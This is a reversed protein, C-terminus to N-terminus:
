QRFRWRSRPRYDAKRIRNQRSRPPVRAPWRSAHDAISDPENGSTFLWNGDPSPICHFIGHDGGLLMLHQGFEQQAVHAEHEDLGDPMSRSRSIDGTGRESIQVQQFQRLKRFDWRRITRDFSASLVYDDNSTIAVDCVVDQHGILEWSKLRQLDWLRVVYEPEIAQLLEDYAPPGTATALWLSDSSFAHRWICGGYATIVALPAFPVNGGVHVLFSPDGSCMLLKGNPSLDVHFTRTDLTELGVTQRTPNDVDLKWIQPREKLLAVLLKEAASFALDRVEGVEDVVITPEARDSDQLNWVRIAGDAYAAALHMGEVALSACQIPIGAPGPARRFVFGARVDWVLITMGHRQKEDPSVSQTVLWLGDRTFDIRVIHGDEVLSIPEADFGPKQLDYIRARGDRGITALWRGTPDFAVPSVIGECVIQDLPRGGCSGLASRLVSEAAPLRAEGRDETLRLAEGSLLLGREAYGDRLALEAQAALRAAKAAIRSSVQIGFLVDKSTAQLTAAITAVRDCFIPHGLDYHQPAIGRFDVYLPEVSFTKALSRPLATSRSFDFDCGQDDWAVAGSVLVLLLREGGCRVRWHETEQSVWKSEAAAESALLLFFESDDLAKEIAPWLQPTASLNSTDRFIRLRAGTKPAAFRQLATHLAEAFRHDATHSYSIFARYSAM